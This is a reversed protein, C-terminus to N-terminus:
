RPGAPVRRQRRRHLISSLVRCCVALIAVPLWVWLLESLIVGLGWRSFMYRLGIPSVRIPRWPLFYRAESFPSFLAIGLGGSTMADLLPHSAAVVFYFLWLWWRTKFAASFFRHTLLAAATSTVLAFPLSHMVGRHGWFHEYPIGLRLGITDLDPLISLGMSVLGLGFPPKGRVVGRGLALPIFAHTFATPM